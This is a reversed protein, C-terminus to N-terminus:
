MRAMILVNAINGYFRIIMMIMMGRNISLIHLVIYIYDNMTSNRSPPILHSYGMVVEKILYIWYQIWVNKATNWEFNWLVDLIQVEDVWSQNNANVWIMRGM